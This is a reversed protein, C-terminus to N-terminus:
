ARASTAIQRRPPRQAGVCADASALEVSDGVPTVLARQAERGLPVSQRCSNSRGGGRHPAASARPVPRASVICNAAGLPASAPSVRLAGRSRLRVAEHALAQGCGPCCARGLEM